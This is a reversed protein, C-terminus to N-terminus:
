LGIILKIKEGYPIHGCIFKIFFVLGSICILGIIPKVILFLINNPIRTCIAQVFQMHILYICFTLKGYEALITKIRMSKISYVVNFSVIASIINFCFALPTFYSYNDNKLIYYNLIIFILICFFFLHRVIILHKLKLWDFKHAISGIAFYGLWNFVNLYKTFYQNHPIINYFELNLSIFTLMICIILSYYSKYILPIVLLIILYISIYYYWTGIGFIWSIYSILINQKKDRLFVSLLFTLTACFLWPIIIRNFKKKWFYLINDPQNYVLGSIILFIAVGITGFANWFRTIYLNVSSNYNIINVHAVIVSFIAIVRLIDFSLSDNKTFLIKRDNM